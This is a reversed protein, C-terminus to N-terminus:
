YVNCMEKRKQQYVIISRWINQDLKMMPMGNGVKNKFYVAANVANGMLDIKAWPFHRVPILRDTEFYLHFSGPKKPDETCFTKDKFINGFMITSIDDTGHGRGDIDVVIFRQYLMNQGVWGCPSLAKADGKTYLEPIVVTGDDKKKWGWAQMPKNDQTCPFFRRESGVWGAPLMPFDSLKMDEFPIGPRVNVLNVIKNNVIINGMGRKFVGDNYSQLDKKRLVIGNRQCKAICDEIPVGYYGCHFMGYYPSGGNLNDDLIKQRLARAKESVYGSPNLGM